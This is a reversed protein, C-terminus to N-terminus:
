NDDLRGFFDSKWLILGVILLAFFIVIIFYYADGTAVTKQFEARIEMDSSINTFTYRDTGELVEGGVHISILSHNMYPEFKVTLSSGTEVYHVGAGPMSDGGESLIVTVKKMGRFDNIFSLKTNENVITEKFNGVYNSWYVTANVQKDRTGLAFAGLGMDEVPNKGVFIIKTLSTCGFFAYSGINRVSAPIEATKLLNCRDFADASISVVTGAIDASVANRGKILVTKEKNYLMGDRSTFDPNKHDVDIRFEPNSCGTFASDGIHRVSASIKVAGLSSCGDFANAGITKLKFVSSLDVTKLKTCQSFANADIIELGAPMRVTELSRCLTFAGEAVVTVTQPIDYSEVNCGQILKTKAKNFLMGDISSFFSNGPDVEIRFKANNCGSFSNDGISEVSFPININELNSCWFFANESISKVTSPIVVAAANRGQILTSGGRDFLMGDKSMYYQNNKDVTVYFDPGTCGFFVYVGMYEASVGISVAGLRICDTFAYMGINKLQTCRSLDAATLNICGGFSYRGIKSLTAPFSVTKLLGCEGFASDEISQVGEPIAATEANRGQILVTKDKNYLFGDASSYNPNASDVDIRFDRSNCGLFANKGISTVGAHIGITKLSTCNSFADPGISTLTSPMSVSVVSVADSFACDGIATVSYTRAGYTVSSPISVGTGSGTYESVKVEGGSSTESVVTFLLDGEQIEESVAGDAASASIVAFLLATLALSFLCLGARRGASGRVGSLADFM